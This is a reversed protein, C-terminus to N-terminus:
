HNGRANAVILSDDNVQAEIIDYDMLSGDTVWEEMIGNSPFSTKEKKDGIM